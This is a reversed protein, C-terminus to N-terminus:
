VFIYWISITGRRRFSIMKRYMTLFGFKITKSWIKIADIWNEEIHKALFLLREVIM